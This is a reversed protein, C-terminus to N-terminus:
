PGNLVKRAVLSPQRSCTPRNTPERDATIPFLRQGTISEPEHGRSGATQGGRLPSIRISRNDPLLIYTAFLLSSSIRISNIDSNSWLSLSLISFFFFLSFFVYSAGVPGQQALKFLCVLSAAWFDPLFLLGVSGVVAPWGRGDCRSISLIGGIVERLQVPLWSSLSPLLNRPSLSQFKRPLLRRAFVPCASIQGDAAHKAVRSQFSLHSLPAAAGILRLLWPKDTM